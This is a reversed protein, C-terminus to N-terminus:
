QTDKEMECPNYRNKQWLRRAQDALKQRIWDPSLVEVYGGFSLLMSCIWEGEPLSVDVRIRGDPQQHIQEPFFTDEVMFLAERDFLLTMFVEARIASEHSRRAFDTYKENRREFHAPQMVCNRIRSIRFLRYDSKLRCYGFLYWASGRYVLTMPEVERETFKREGGQYSFRICRRRAVATQLLELRKQNGEADGWPSLEVHLEDFFTEADPPLMREMKQSTSQLRGDGLVSVGKLANVIAIMDDPSFLQRELSYNEMISFGGAMGNESILPIGAAEISQMDRYITRVSVGFHEALAPATMKRRKLLLLVIGLLRDIKM